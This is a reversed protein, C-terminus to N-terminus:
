PAIDNNDRMQIHKTAIQDVTADLVAGVTQTLTIKIVDSITAFEKIAESGLNYSDLWKKNGGKQSVSGGYFYVTIYRM